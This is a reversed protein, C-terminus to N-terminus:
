VCVQSSCSVPWRIMNSRRVSKRLVGAAARGATRRDCGRRRASSADRGVHVDEAIEEAPTTASDTNPSRAASNLMMAATIIQIIQCSARTANATSGSIQNTVWHNRVLTRTDYRVTRVHIARM